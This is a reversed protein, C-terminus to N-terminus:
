KIPTIEIRRNHVVEIVINPYKEKFQSIVYNCSGCTDKETFLTIKGKTEPRDGLDKAINNLIKFETDDDRLTERGRANPAETAKLVPNEPYESIDKINPNGSHKTVQSHAYYENKPLKVDLEVTTYCFNGKGSKLVTNSLRGKYKAARELLAKDKIPDFARTIAWEFKILQGTNPDRAYRHEHPTSGHEVEDKGTGENGSDSRRHNGGSGGGNGSLDDHRVFYFRYEGSYADRFVAVGGLVNGLQKLLKDVM